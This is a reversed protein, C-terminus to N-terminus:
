FWGKYRECLPSSVYGFAVCELSDEVVHGPQSLGFHEADAVAIRFVSDRSM